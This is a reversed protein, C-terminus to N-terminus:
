RNKKSIMGTLRRVMDIRQVEAPNMRSKLVKLIMDTEADSFDMGQAKAQATISLFFPMMEEKKKTQAEELMQTLFTLKQPNMGHLLPDQRWDYTEM